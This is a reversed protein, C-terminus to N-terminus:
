GHGKKALCYKQLRSQPKEPITYEILGKDLLRRVLDNLYRSPKNKGIKQALEKKGLEEKELLRLIKQAMESGVGSEVGPREVTEEKAFMAQMLSSTGDKDAELGPLFFEFAKWSRDNTYKPEPHGLKKWQNLMMRFGTGAQECLIIRRMAAVIAPNRVEKEGPELLRSDDGFVDGPNVLQIGDQYFKIVAKRSHDGYDQHILLNVAAERFVRYGPPTDQRALTHPDIGSFPKPMFFLYKAVLQQWTTIINDESVYRDIWRVEPLDDKSGYPLFQVDLTPRPILQHIAVSSGFLMIAAHTPKFQQGDKM